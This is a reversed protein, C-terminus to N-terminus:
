RMREWAAPIADSLAGATLGEESTQEAALDGALGHLYVATHTALAPDGLRALLAGVMGTLVDGTGATAMGPNGTPCIALSGDPSAVVTHAGKLVVHVGHAEALARASSPRDANVDAASKDLLRALEGPHPTLVVPAQARSLVDLRGVLANLADADLVLPVTSEEVLACILATTAATPVLGPGAAIATKGRLLPRIRDVGAEDSPGERFAEIMLEPVRGELRSQAVVDTAVTVLGAGSRLAALGSLLAAGSKGASGAIVLVHGFTGKHGAPVRSPQRRVLEKAELLSARPTCHRTAAAPIGIDVLHVEGSLGAGPHHLHGHKLFGYTVTMDARFAVGLVQGTDSDLGSPIDVAVRLGEYGDLAEIVARYLGRVESSLGTGLLADVVVDGVAISHRHADLEAADRIEVVEVELRDLIQLNLLADGSIRARPACLFVRVAVGAETLHRAIVYGDGGNNGSGCFISARAPRSQVRELILAATARGANEMLVVGPIGLEEITWRDLERMESATTVYM